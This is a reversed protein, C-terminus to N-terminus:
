LRMASKGWMDCSSIDLRELNVLNGLTDPLDGAESVRGVDSSFPSGTLVRARTWVFGCRDYMVLLRRPVKSRLQLDARSM